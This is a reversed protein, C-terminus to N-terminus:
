SLEMAASCFLCLGYRTVLAVSSCKLAILCDPNQRITRREAHDRGARLYEPLPESEYPYPICVPHPLVNHLRDPRDPSGHHTAHCCVRRHRGRGQRRLRSRHLAHRERSPTSGAQLDELRARNELTDYRSRCDAVADVLAHHGQTARGLLTEHAVAEIADAPHAAPRGSRPADKLAGLGSAAFRLRWKRVTPVSVWEVATALKSSVGEHAYALVIQAHMAMRAQWTGARVITRLVRRDEADIGLPLPRNAHM